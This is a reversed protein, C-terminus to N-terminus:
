IVFNYIFIFHCFSGAMVFLHFLEHAGFHKTKIPSRDLAYIIGGVTYIVGGILLWLLGPAPLAKSLPSFAGVVTWGMLIYLLASVWRPASIWFLKVIFGIIASSWVVIFLPIGVSDKLTILCIPTYTGAILIFIMMHDVKRLITNIRTSIDFTHYVTSATYLLILSFGFTFLIVITSPSESTAAKMLLLITGLISLLQGIYHTIASVPDKIKLTM